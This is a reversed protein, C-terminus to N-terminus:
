RKQRVRNDRYRIFSDVVELDYIERGSEAAPDIGTIKKLAAYAHRGIDREVSTLFRILFTISDPDDAYALCDIIWIKMSSNGTNFMRIFEGSHTEFYGAFYKKFNESASFGDQEEVSKKVAYGALMSFDLRIDRSELYVFIEDATKVTQNKLILEWKQQDYGIAYDYRTAYSVLDSIDEFNGSIGAQHELLPLGSIFGAKLLMRLARAGTQSNEDTYLYTAYFIAAVSMFLIFGGALSLLILKVIRYRRRAFDYSLVFIFAVYKVLKVAGIGRGPPIIEYIFRDGLYFVVSSLIFVPIAIGPRRNQRLVFFLILSYFIMNSYRGDLVKILPGSISFSGRGSNIILFILNLLFAFVFPFLRIDFFLKLRAFRGYRLRYDDILDDYNLRSFIFVCYFSLVFLYSRTIATVGGWNYKINFLINVGFFFIMLILFHYIKGMQQKIIDMKVGEGNKIGSAGYNM